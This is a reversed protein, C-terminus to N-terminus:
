AWRLPAIQLTTYNSNNASGGNKYARVKITNAGANLRVIRSGTQQRTGTASAAYLVQGWSATDGGVEMQSEGLTTAGSVAASVRTDGGNAVLWAGVTIQVWCPNDLNLVTSPFNPLDAWSTATVAQVNNGKVSIPAPLEPLVAEERLATIAAQTASALTSFWTRLPNLKDTQTPYPINDPSTTAPM